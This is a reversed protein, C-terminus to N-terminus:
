SALLVWFIITALLYVAGTMMSILNANSSGPDFDGIIGSGGVFMLTFSIVGSIACVWHAIRERRRSASLTRELKQRYLAYDGHADSQDQQILRLALSEGPNLESM